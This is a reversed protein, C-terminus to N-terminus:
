FSMKILYTLSSMLIAILWIPWKGYIIAFAAVLVLIVDKFDHIATLAIPNYLAALLIGVVAANVGMLAAQIRRHQRLSNWFPLAGMVLLFSPVFIALLAVV